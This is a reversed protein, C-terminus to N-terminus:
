PSYMTRLLGVRIPLDLGGSFHLILSDPQNTAHPSEHM